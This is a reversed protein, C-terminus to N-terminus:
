IYYSNVPSVPNKIKDCNLAFVISFIPFDQRILLIFEMNLTLGNFNRNIVNEKNKKILKKWIKSVAHIVYTSTIKVCKQYQWVTFIVVLSPIVKIWHIFGPIESSFIYDLSNNITCYWLIARSPHPFMLIDLSM